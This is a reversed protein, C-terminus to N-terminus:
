GCGPRLNFFYPPESNHQVLLVLLRNNNLIYSLAERRLNEAPTTARLLEEAELIKELALRGNITMVKDGPALGDARSLNVEVIILESENWRWEIACQMRPPSTATPTPPPLTPTPPVPSPFPTPTPTPIQPFPTSDPLICGAPTITILTMLGLVILQRTRNNKGM